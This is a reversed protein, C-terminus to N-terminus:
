RKGLLREDTGKGMPCVNIHLCPKRSHDWSDDVELCYPKSDILDKEYLHRCLLPFSPMSERSQAYNWTFAKFAIMHSLVMIASPKPIEFNLEVSKSRNELLRVVGAAIRRIQKNTYEEPM